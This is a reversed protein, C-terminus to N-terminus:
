KVIRSLSITFRIRGGRIDDSFFDDRLLSPTWPYSDAVCADWRVLRGVGVAHAEYQDFTVLV